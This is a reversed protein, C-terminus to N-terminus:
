TLCFEVLEDRMAAHIETTNLLEDPSMADVTVWWYPKNGPWYVHFRYGHKRMYEVIWKEASGGTAHLCSYVTREHLVPFGWVIKSSGTQVGIEIQRNHEDSM